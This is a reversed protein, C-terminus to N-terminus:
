NSEVFLVCFVKPGQVGITLTREIDATRSPGTVLTMHHQQGTGPTSLQRLREGASELMPYLERAQVLVFHAITLMTVARATLNNEAVLVSGTEAIALHADSLGAPADAIERPGQAEELTIGRAELLPLLAGWPERQAFGPPLMILKETLAPHEAILRAAEALSGAYHAEGGAASLRREFQSYLAQQEQIQM